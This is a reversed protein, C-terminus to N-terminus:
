LILNGDKDFITNDYIVTHHDDFIISYRLRYDIYPQCDDYWLAADKFNFKNSKVNYIRKGKYKLNPAYVRKIMGM